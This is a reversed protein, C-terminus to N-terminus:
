RRAIRFSVSTAASVNGAVDRAILTARYRGPRLRRGAIRGSFPERNPGAEGQRAFSRVPVLRTCRKRRRNRASPRRCRGRVRRGKLKRAIRFVVRAQESLTFRFITGRRPRLVGRSVSVSQLLPASTDSPASGGQGPQCGNSPGARGPCQDQSEDGFGDRDSDAEVRAQVPIKAHSKYPWQGSTSGVPPDGAYEAYIDFQSSTTAQCQGSAAYIGLYDNKRVTIRAPRTNVTNATQQGGSSEGVVTYVTGGGSRAVKLKLGQVRQSGNRFSWSTIVGNIPIQYSNGSPSHVQIRAINSCGANPAFLQGVTSAAMATGSASLWLALTAAPLVITWAPPRRIV